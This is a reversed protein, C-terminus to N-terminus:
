NVFSKIKKNTTNTGIPLHPVNSLISKSPSVFKYLAVKPSDKLFHDSLDEVCSLLRPPINVLKVDNKIEPAEIVSLMEAKDTNRIVRAKCLTEM